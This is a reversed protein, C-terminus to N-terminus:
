SAGKLGTAQGESDQIIETVTSSYSITGGLAGIRDVFFQMAYGCGGEYCGPALYPETGYAKKVGFTFFGVGISHMWDVLKGSNAYLARQYPMEGNFRDNEPNVMSKLADMMADLKYAPTGEFRGLGYNTQLESETAFVGSYTMSMSGGPIDQKEFVIVSLGKELLRTAAVLGATGAGMIAVDFDGTQDEGKAPTEPGKQFDSLSGGANEIGEKVASSIAMCTVTAGTVTDVELNGSEVIRAPYMTCALTGIGVTEDNNIVQIDALSGNKITTEVFLYDEHGIAKTVYKGDTLTDMKKKATDEPTKPQSVEDPEASATKSPTSCGSGLIAAAGLAGAAGMGKLFTRRNLETTM